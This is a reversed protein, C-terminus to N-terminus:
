YAKKLIKSHVSNRNAKRIRAVNSASTDALRHGFEAFLYTTVGAIDADGYPLTPMVM